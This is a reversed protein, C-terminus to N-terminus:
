AVRRIAPRVTKSEELARRNMSGIDPRGGLSSIVVTEDERTAPRAEGTMSVLWLSESMGTRVPLSVVVESWPNGSQEELSELVRLAAVVARGSTPAQVTVSLSVPLM